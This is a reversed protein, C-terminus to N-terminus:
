EYVQDADDRITPPVVVGMLRASRLNLHLQLERQTEVPTDAPSAGEKLIRAAMAGTQRGHRYYDFGMAAMAGRKVSDVDACFLALRNEICVKVVAELSSVVTNDTPIFVADVRGALSKAAQYVESSKAMTAPVIIFGRGAAFRQVDKVTTKSNAEGANFIVGLRKLAPYFRLVMGMHQDIPLRDSVGTISGGPRELNSVLGAGVPDTIATFLFPTAQMHPSKRIAQAVAQATPTAIALILDPAEGMIQVGIQGATAMNAQANHIRFEAPLGNEQLYDQFGQLVADLAPHEVFQSVSIRYTREDGRAPAVLAILVLGVLAIRSM